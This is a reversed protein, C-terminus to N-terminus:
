GACNLAEARNIGLAVNTAHPALEFGANWLSFPWSETLDAGFPALTRPEASLAPAISRHREAM